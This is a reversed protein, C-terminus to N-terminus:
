QTGPRASQLSSFGRVNSQRSQLATEEEAGVVEVGVTVVGMEGLAVGWDVVYSVVASVADEAVLAVRGECVEEAMEVCIEEAPVTGEARALGRGL